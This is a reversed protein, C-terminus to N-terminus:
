RPLRELRYKQTRRPSGPVDSSCRQTTEDRSATAANWHTIQLSEIIRFEAAAEEQQQLSWSALFSSPLLFLIHFFLNYTKKKTQQQLTNKLVALCEDVVVLRSLFVSPPFVVHFFYTYKKQKQQQLTNKLVALCEGVVVLRSLFVSPPFM